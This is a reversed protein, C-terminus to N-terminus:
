KRPAFEIIGETQGDHDVIFENIRARALVSLMRHLAQEPLGDEAAEAAVLIYVVGLAQTTIRRHAPNDATTGNRFGDLGLGIHELYAVLQGNELFDELLPALEVGEINNEAKKRGSTKLSKAITKRGNQEIELMM